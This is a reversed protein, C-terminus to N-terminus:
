PPLEELGAQEDVRRPVLGVRHVLRDVQRDRHRLPHTQVQGAMALQRRERAPAEAQGEAQGVGPQEVLALRHAPM